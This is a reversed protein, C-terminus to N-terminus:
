QVVTDSTLWLSAAVGVDLRAQTDRGSAPPRTNTRTKTQAPAPSEKLRRHSRRGPDQLHDIRGKKGALALMEELTGGDHIDAAAQSEARSAPCQSPGAIGIDLELPAWLSKFGHQARPQDKRIQTSLSGRM